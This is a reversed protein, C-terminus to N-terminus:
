KFPIQKRALERLKKIPNLGKRQRDKRVEKQHQENWRKNKKFKRRFAKIRNPNEGLKIDFGYARSVGVWYYRKREERSMKSVRERSEDCAKLAEELTTNPYKTSTM